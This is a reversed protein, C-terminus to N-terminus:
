FLNLQSGIWRLFRNPQISWKKLGNPVCKFNLFLMLCFQGWFQRLGCHPKTQRSLVSPDFHQINVRFGVNAFYAINSKAYINLMQRCVITGLALQSVSILTPNRQM